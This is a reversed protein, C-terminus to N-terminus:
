TRKGWCIEKAKDSSNPWTVRCSQSANEPQASTAKLSDRLGVVWQMKGTRQIKSTVRAAQSFRERVTNKGCGVVFRPVCSNLIPQSSNPKSCDPFYPQKPTSANTDKGTNWSRLPVPLFYDRDWPAATKWLEWGVLM